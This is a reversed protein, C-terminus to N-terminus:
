SSSEGNRRTFGRGAWNALLRKESKACPACLDGDEEHDRHCVPCQKAQDAWVAIKAGWYNKHDPGISDGIGMLAVHIGPAIEIAIERLHAEFDHELYGRKELWEQPLEICKPGIQYFKM